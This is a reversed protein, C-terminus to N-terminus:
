GGFPTRLGTDTCPGDTLWIGQSPCGCPSEEWAFFRRVVGDLIQFRGTSTAWYTGQVSVGCESCTVLRSTVLYREGCPLGFIRNPSVM